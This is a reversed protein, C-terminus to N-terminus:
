KHVAIPDPKGDPDGIVNGDKKIKGILLLGAVHPASFSTGSWQAYNNGPYTSVINVGPACYDIPKGFNSSGIIVPPKSNDYFYAWNDGQDMASVTYIHPGNVRAPSQLSADIGENGAAITFDIFKGKKSCSAASIADDLADSTTNLSFSLNVVDGSNAKKAVWNIASIIADLYATGDAAFIKVPIVKAGPAVGLIGGNGAIAGIIGAIFTGHGSSDTTATEGPVFSKARNDGVNLDPHTADIGSDIIWAVNDGKYKSEGGGVRAVGWPVYDTFKTGPSTKKAMDKSLKIIQNEEVYKVNADSKMMKVQDTTASFGQIATEYVEEMEDKSTYKTLLDHGKGKVKTNRDNEDDSNAIADDDKLVVIYKKSLSGSKLTLTADQGTSAEQVVPQVDKKMCAAMALVMIGLSLYYIKRKM